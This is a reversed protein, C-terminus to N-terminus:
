SMRLGTKPRATTGPEFAHMVRLRRARRPIPRPVAVETGGRSIYRQRQEWFGHMVRLRPARRPFQRQCQRRQAEAHHMANDKPPM